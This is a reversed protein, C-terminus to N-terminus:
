RNLFVMHAPIDGARVSWKKRGNRSYCHLTGSSVYNKADTVYIDGNRPDIQIGYPITIDKETGDTIFHDTILEKTKVNIIGNMQNARELEHTVM